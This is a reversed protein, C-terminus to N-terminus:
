GLQATLFSATTQLESLVRELATFQEILYERKGASIENVQDISSDLSDLRLDFGENITGLSGTTPDLFDSLFQDIRSTAGRSVTLEGEIGSTVQSPDLTVNVQLDATNENDEDGILLRGTGVASEVVGNVIFSGAVDKGVGTETGDFGLATLATGSLQEVKSNSGYSESTIELKSGEVSVTVDRIALESSSNIISQLHSALEEQTYTGQTLTLSESESGDISIQFSDNTGDIVVSSALTNTATIAGREAAQLIDVQYPTSTSQTRTSGLVFEINANSSSGGLGFLKPIDKPDVGEVDGSLVSELRGSDLSLQGNSEIDIGIQSLRNLDSDTGAVTETVMASLQNKLSAVSRNGLLPSADQTEPNYATQQDIFSMLSNFEDVFDNISTTAQTNDRSVTILVDKDEDVSVLDLTVNEILGEIKNTEYEATIAGAGSGLQVAANTAEQIAVGTFDPRVIDGSTAALNNTVTIENSAGTHKSSLLIRDSNTAQDHVIAASIDDSQENIAQVLGSVNNNTSDVTIETAPRDGVQFSITGETISTSTSDFGQSGIQHAKARSTVRLNYSGEAANNGPTAVILSEDSSTSSRFEFVSSTSRNLQSMKSRLSLLRAEVGSFAQQQVQIETKKSTLREVQSDQLAVLGEIISATDLGSVLGDISFM